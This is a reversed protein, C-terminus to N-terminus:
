DFDSLDVTVPEPRKSASFGLRDLTARLEDASLDAPEAAATRPAIRHMGDLLRHPGDDPLWRVISAPTRGGLGDNPSILWAGVSTTDDHVWDSAAHAVMLMAWLRKAHEARPRNPTGTRWARMTPASWGLATRMQASTAFYTALADFAEKAATAAHSPVRRQRRATQKGRKPAAPREPALSREPAPAYTAVSAM